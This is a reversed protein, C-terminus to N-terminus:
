AWTKGEGGLEKLKGALYRCLNVGILPYLQMIELFHGAQIVFISSDGQTLYDFGAPQGGLLGLEGFFGGAEIDHDVTGDEGVARVRGQDVLYLGEFPEGRRVMVKADPHRELDAISAVARLERIGLGTFVAFRRLSLVRKIIPPMGAEQNRCRDLFYLAAQRVDPDPDAALVQAMPLLAPRVTEGAVCLALLRTLPEEDRCLSTLVRTQDEGRILPLAKRGRRIREDEPLSDVLPVLRAATVPDLSAELLEVAAAAEKSALSAYMLRMDSKTVWLGLFVLELDAQAKERLHDVLLVGARSPTAMEMARAAIRGNYIGTLRKGLFPTLDVDSPKAQRLAELLGHQARTGREALAQELVPLATPGYRALSEVAARRVSETDELLDILRNVARMDRSLAFSAACQARVTEDRDSLGVLAEEADIQPIDLEEMLALAEEPYEEPEMTPRTTLSGAMGAAVDGFQDYDFGDRTIVQRLGARYRRRFVLAELSWLGAVVVALLAMQRPPLVPKLALMLLAGGLTGTQVLVGRAFVQGWEGVDGPLLSFLQKTLPGLVARQLFLISFQAYSAAALNFFAFLAGFSLCQNLPAVVAASRPSLRSYLGGMLVIFVFVTLTTAARFWGLFGLLATQSHFSADAVTGFQYTLMPLLLNPLLACVCLFRFIPYRRVAALVEVPAPPPQPKVPRSGAKRGGWSTAVFAAMVGNALALALLIAGDGLLATVPEASLSGLTSGLVQAGMFLRFLRRGQRADFQGQILNWLYVLLFADKLYLLQYLLPYVLKLGAGLMFFVGVLALAFLLLFGALMSRDPFRQGLRRCLDFFVISIVGSILLMLPIRSPGYHKLFAADVTNRFIAFFFYLGLFLLGSRLFDRREAPYVGLASEWFARVGERAPFTPRGM